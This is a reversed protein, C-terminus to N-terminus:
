FLFIALCQFDISQSKIEHDMCSEFRAIPYFLFFHAKLMDGYPIKRKQQMKNCFLQLFIQM